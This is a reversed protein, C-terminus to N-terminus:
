LMGIYSVVDTIGDTLPDSLAVLTPQQDSYNTEEISEESTDRSKRNSKLMVTCSNPELELCNASSSPTIDSKVLLSKLASKFQSADPNNNFGSKSRIKSFLTEIHDQSLKYALLYKVHEHQQFLRGALNTFSKASTHFGLVFTRRRSSNLLRGDSLTLKNIYSIAADLNSKIYDINGRTVASKFGKSFISHSNLMDFLRDVQFDSLM